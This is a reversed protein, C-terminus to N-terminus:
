MIVTSAFYVMPVVIGLLILEIGAHVNARQRLNARQEESLRPANYRFLQLWAIHPFRRSLASMGFLVALFGVLVLQVTRYMARGPAPPLTDFKPALIASDLDPVFRPSRPPCRRAGHQRVRSQLRRRAYILSHIRRRRAVDGLHQSAHPALAALGRHLPKERQDVIFEARKCSRLEAVFAGIVRELGRGQHM